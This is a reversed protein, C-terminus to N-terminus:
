MEMYTQLYPLRSSIDQKKDLWRNLVATAFRHRLDYVRVSPLLDEPIDPNSAAFAKKFKEQMQVATYPGGNRAPFLYDSDPAAVDRIAVYSRCLTAMDDSMVVTRSRHRKSDVIRLEGSHLDVENRKLNRGEGPRLGCTYTMRFYTSFVMAALPNTKIKIQDIEKFLNTLEADTFLYPVFVNKGASFRESIVYAKKGNARQYRGFCRAFASAQHLIGPYCCDKTKLWNLVIPETLVTEEPYMESCFLDFDHARNRYTSEAHNLSVQLNIMGDLDAAFGSLFHKNM